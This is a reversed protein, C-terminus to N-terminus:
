GDAQGGTAAHEQRKHQAPMLEWVIASAVRPSVAERSTGAALDDYIAGVEERGLRIGEDRMRDLAMAVTLNRFAQREIQENTTM